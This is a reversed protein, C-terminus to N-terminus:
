VITAIMLLLGWLGLRLWTDLIWDHPHNVTQFRTNPIGYKPDQYLFQDQGIGALPHDRLVRLAAQWIVLRSLNSQDTLTFRAINGFFLFVAPAAVVALGLLPYLLRRARSWVAIVVLAAF